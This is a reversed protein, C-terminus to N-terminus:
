VKLWLRAKKWKGRTTLSPQGFPLADFGLSGASVLMLATAALFLKRIDTAIWFARTLHLWPFLRRYRINEVQVSTEAM